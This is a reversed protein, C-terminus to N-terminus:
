NKQVKLHEAYALFLIGTIVTPASLFLAFSLEAVSISYLFIGVGVIEALIGAGYWSIVKVKREFWTINQREKKKKGCLLCRRFCDSDNIMIFLFIGSEVSRSIGAWILSIFFLIIGVPLLAWAPKKKMLKLYTIDKLKAGCWPCTKGVLGGSGCKPCIKAM